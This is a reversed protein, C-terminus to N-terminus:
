HFKKYPKDKQEDNNNKSFYYDYMGCSGCFYPGYQTGCCISTSGKNGMYVKIRDLSFLFQNNGYKCGSTSDWKSEIYGGFCYGKVGKMISLANSIGDCHQHLKFKVEKNYISKLANKILDLKSKNKIIKSYIDFLCIADIKNKIEKVENLISILIEKNAKYEQLSTELEKIKLKQEKIKENQKNM